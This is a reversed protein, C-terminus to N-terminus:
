VGHKFLSIGLRRRRRPRNSATMSTVHSADDAGADKDIRVDNGLLDVRREEDESGPSGASRDRKSSREDVGFECRPTGLDPSLIRIQAFRKMGGDCKDISPYQEEDRLGSAHSGDGNGERSIEEFDRVRGNGFAYDCRRREYQEGDHVTESDARPRGHM